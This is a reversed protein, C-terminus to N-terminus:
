AGKKVQDPEHHYKLDLKRVAEMLHTNSLHSYRMTMKIDKHGLLEQISRIDVGIMALHSAYTHRLDHFHFDTLGTKKVAHNFSTKIDGIPQGMPDCFVYGNKSKPLRLLEDHLSQNIPLQKTENNKTKIVTIIRNELDVDRWKLSLIEGRRMGTNLATIVIPKLHPACNNILREIEDLKLYRTRGPPEKFKKVRLLRNEKLLEWDVALNFMHKLCGVDRNVTAPEVQKIRMNKYREVEFVTIASLPKGRFVKLLNNISVQDRRYSQITKSGEKSALYEDCLKEFIMGAPDAQAPGEPKAPPIPTPEDGAMMEALAKEAAEKSSGFSRRKRIGGSFYDLYWSKGRQYIKM